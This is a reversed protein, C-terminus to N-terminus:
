LQHDVYGGAQSPPEGGLRQLLSRMYTRAVKTGRVRSASSKAREPLWVAHSLLFHSCTDSLGNRLSKSANICVTIENCCHDLDTYM